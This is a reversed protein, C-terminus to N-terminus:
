KWAFIKGYGMLNYEIFNKKVKTKFGNNHLISLLEQYKQDKSFEHFEMIIKNIKDFNEKRLNKFVVYESGECDIKLFDIKLLNYDEIIKDLSITSVKDIRKEKQYKKFILNIFIKTLKRPNWKKDHSILNFGPYHVLELEQNDLGIAKNITIVNSINNIKLNNQLINIINLPEVAIIKGETVFPVAWLVFLGMNAGIDVIVDNSKIEFNKNLYCNRDFIENILFKVSGTLMENDYNFILNNKLKLQNLIGELFYQASSM